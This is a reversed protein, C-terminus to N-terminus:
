TSVLDSLRELSVGVGDRLEKIKLIEKLFQREAKKDHFGYYFIIHMIDGLLTMRDWYSFCNGTDYGYKDYLHQPDNEETFEAVITETIKLSKEDVNWLIRIDKKNM